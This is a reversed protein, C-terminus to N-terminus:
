EGFREVATLFGRGFAGREREQVTGHQGPLFDARLLLASEEDGTFLMLARHGRRELQEGFIRVTRVPTIESPPETATWDFPMPVLVQVTQGAWLLRWLYMPVDIVTIPELAHTYLVAHM